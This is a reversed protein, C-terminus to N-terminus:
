QSLRCYIFGIAAESRVLLRKPEFLLAKKYPTESREREIALQCCTGGVVRRVASAWRLDVGVVTLTVDAAERVTPGGSVV